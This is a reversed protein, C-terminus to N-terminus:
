PSEQDFLLRGVPLEPLDGAAFEDVIKGESLIGIRSAVSCVLPLDHSILVLATGRRRCSEELLDLLRKRAPLDLSVAPEDAVLVAPQAALARALAVRQRQGGSLEWPFRQLCAIALGVSALLEQISDASHNAGAARAAERISYGCSRRPDLASGPSQFILQAPWPGKGHQRGAPNICGATPELFGAILRALTSKGAGSRGVLGYVEGKGVQFSLGKLVPTASSRGSFSWRGPYAFELGEVKLGIPMDPRPRSLRPPLTAAAVLERTVAHAPATLIREVPGAEVTRGDVIVILRDARKRILGVDHTVHLLALGRQRRQAEILEMIEAQLDPDLSTTPEDAVLLQPQGALALALGVRQQQGGSLEHPFRKLMRVPDPLCVDELLALARLRRDTASSRAVLRILEDLHDGISFCPNLSAGADQFVVGVGRGLWSRRRESSWDALDEGRWRISGTTEAGRPLLGLCARVTMTKGGGSPGILAVSEGPGVALDVGHLISTGGGSGPLSVTLREVSLLVEPTM